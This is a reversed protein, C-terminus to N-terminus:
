KKDIKDSLDGSLIPFRCFGKPDVSFDDLHFSPAMRERKWQSTRWLKYFKIVSNSLHDNEADPFELKMSREVQELSMRERIFLREIHELWVYPMLDKEDSQQEALPRLEASPPLQRITSFSKIQHRGFVEQSELWMIYSSLFHKDIGAIPALGGASDGDMTTYGVANESRNSTNILLMEFNNAFMWSLPARTRAQINQKLLDDKQWDLQRSILEEFKAEYLNVLDQVDTDFHRAGLETALQSAAKRTAASSQETGQYLTILIKAVWASRSKPDKVESAYVKPLFERLGQYGLQRQAEYVMHGVLAACVGSDIGGSLSIVFGRGSSKRLYDFLGLSVARSFELYKEQSQDPNEIEQGELQENKTTKFNQNIEPNEASHVPSAVVCTSSPVHNDEAYSETALKLSRALDIDLDRFTLEGDGFVFRPGRGVIEGSEAFISGGDYVIRGAELGVLNTYCYHAKLARSWHSVLRERTRIKRLSFHSASPNLILECGSNVHDQSSSQAAWAEECIEVALKFTGLQYHQDGFPVKSGGIDIWDSVGFPWPQFWRPEYHIGERALLRKPNIGIIKGNQIVAVCNYLRNKFIMPLGIVATINQSLTAIQKLMMLANKSTDLSLFSDECGYGSVALEPFCLVDVRETKAQEIFKSIRQQNGQWDLPTQNLTVAGVRVLEM